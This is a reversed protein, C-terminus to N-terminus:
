PSWRSGASGTVTSGNRDTEVELSRADDGLRFRGEAIARAWAATRRFGGFPYFHVGVIRRGPREAAAHALDLVAKEPVVVQALRFVTGPHRLLVTLSGGVGCARAYRILNRATTLGALGVEVPLGPAEDAKPGDLWRVVPRAAFALQTVVYLEARAAEAYAAKDRLAQRLQPGAIRPHGEPHAGVGIRRIGHRELLGSRLLDLSGQYSGAAAAPDGAIVLADRVEAEGALRSLLDRLTAEGSLRRAALHPVPEMEQRRLKAAAEVLDAPGASPVWSVFVRTGVPLHARMDDIRQAERPVVEISFDALLRRVDDYRDM